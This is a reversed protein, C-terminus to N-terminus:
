SHTSFFTRKLYTGVSLNWEVTMASRKTNSEKLFHDAAVVNAVWVGVNLIGDCFDVVVLSPLIVSSFLSWTDVLSSADLPVVVQLILLSHLIIRGEWTRSVVLIGLNAEQSSSLLVVEYIGKALTSVVRSLHHIIWVILSKVVLILEWIRLLLLQVCIQGALVGVEGVAVTGDRWLGKNLQALIRFPDVVPLLQLHCGLICWQELKGYLAWCSQGLSFLNKDISKSQHALIRLTGLHLAWLLQSTHTVLPVVFTLCDIDLIAEDVESALLADFLVLLVEVFFAGCNYTCVQNYRLAIM